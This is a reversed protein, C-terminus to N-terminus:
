FTQEIFKRVEDYAHYPANFQNQENNKDASYNWVWIQWGAHDKFIEFNLVQEDSYGKAFLNDMMYKTILMGDDCHIRNDIFTEPKWKDDPKAAQVFDVLELLNKKM